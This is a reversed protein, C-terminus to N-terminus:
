KSNQEVWADFFTAACIASCFDFNQEDYESLGYGAIAGSKKTVRWWHGSFIYDIDNVRKGCQDCQLENIKTL